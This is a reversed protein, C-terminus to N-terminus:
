PIKAGLYYIIPRNENKFCSIKAQTQFKLTPISNYYRSPNQNKKKSSKKFIINKAHYFIQTERIRRKGQSIKKIHIVLGSHTV